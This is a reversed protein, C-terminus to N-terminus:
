DILRDSTLMFRMVSHALNQRYVLHLYTHHENQVPELSRRAPSSWRRPRCSRRAPASRRCAARRWPARACAAWATPGRGRSRGGCGWPSWWWSAGSTRRTRIAHRWVRHTNLALALAAPSGTTVYRWCQCEIGWYGLGGSGLSLGHCEVITTSLQTHSNFCRWSCLGEPGLLENVVAFVQPPAGLGTPTVGRSERTTYFWVFIVWQKFDYM